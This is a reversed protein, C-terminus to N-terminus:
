KGLRRQVEALQAELAKQKKSLSLKDGQAKSWKNSAHRVEKMGHKSAAKDLLRIVTKEIVRDFGNKRM